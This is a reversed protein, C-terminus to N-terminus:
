GQGFFSPLVFVATLMWLLLPTNRFAEIYIAALTRAVRGGYNRTIALFTGLIISIVCTAVAVILTLYLGDLLFHFNTENFVNEM